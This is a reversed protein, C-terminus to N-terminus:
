MVSSVNALSPVLIWLSSTSATLATVVSSTSLAAGASTSLIMQSQLLRVTTRNKLNPVTSKKGNLFMRLIGKVTASTAADRMVHAHSLAESLWSLRASRSTSFIVEM